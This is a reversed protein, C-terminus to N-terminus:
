RAIFHSLYCRVALHNELQSILINIQNTLPHILDCCVTKVDFGGPGSDNGCCDSAPGCMLKVRQGVYFAVDCNSQDTREEGREERLRMHTDAQAYKLTKKSYGLLIAVGCM